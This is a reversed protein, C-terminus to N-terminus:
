CPNTPNRQYFDDVIDKSHKFGLANYWEKNEDYSKPKVCFQVKKNKGVKWADLIDNVEWEKKGDNVIVLPASDNHQDFLLNASAKQLLSLHFVNHIKM